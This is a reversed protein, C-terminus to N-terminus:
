GENLYTYVKFFSTVPSYKLSIRKNKKDIAIWDLTSSQPM